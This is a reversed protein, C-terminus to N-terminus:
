KAKINSKLFKTGKEVMNEIMSQNNARTDARPATAFDKVNERIKAPLDSTDRCEGRLVKELTNVIASIEAINGREIVQDFQAPVSKNFQTVVNNM